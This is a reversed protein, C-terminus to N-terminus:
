GAGRDKWSKIARILPFPLYLILFLAACLLALGIGYAPSPGFADSFRDIVSGQPPPYGMM